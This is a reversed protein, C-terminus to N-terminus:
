ADTSEVHDLALVARHKRATRALNRREKYGCRDHIERCSLHTNAIACAPRIFRRGRGTGAARVAQSIRIADDLPAVSVRHNCTARFSGDRGHANASESGHTRERRAVVIRLM